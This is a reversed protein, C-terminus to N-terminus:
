ITAQQYKRRMSRHRARRWSVCSALVIMAGVQKSGGVMPFSNM